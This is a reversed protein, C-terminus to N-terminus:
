NSRVLAAVLKATPQGAAENEVPRLAHGPGPNAVDVIHGCGPNRPGRVAAISWKYRSADGPLSGDRPGCGLSLWVTLINVDIPKIGINNCM